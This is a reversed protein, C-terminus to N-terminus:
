LWAGFFEVFNRVFGMLGVKMGREGWVGVGGEVWCSVHELRM